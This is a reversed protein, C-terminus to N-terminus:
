PVLVIKGRVHGRALLEYAERVRTLPYTAAIPAELEGAAILGALKDLVEASAGAAYGEAKVGYREVADFRTITNASGPPWAMAM